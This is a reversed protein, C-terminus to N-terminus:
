RVINPSHQQETTIEPPSKYYHTYYQTDVSHRLFRM